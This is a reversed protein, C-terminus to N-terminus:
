GTWYLPSGDVILANPFLTLVASTIHPARVLFFVDVTGLPWPLSASLRIATLSVQRCLTSSPLPLAQPTLCAQLLVDSRRM